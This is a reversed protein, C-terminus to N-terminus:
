FFKKVYDLYSDSVIYKLYCDATVSFRIQLHGNYLESRDSSTLIFLKTPLAIQTTYKFGHWTKEYYSKHWQLVFFDLPRTASGM